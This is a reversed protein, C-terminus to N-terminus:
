SIKDYGKGSNNEYKYKMNIGWTKFIINGGPRERRGQLPHLKTTTVM